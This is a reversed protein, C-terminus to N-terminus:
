PAGGEARRRARYAWVEDAVRRIRTFGTVKSTGSLRPKVDITTLVSTAGRELGRQILEFSFFFTNCTIRPALEKALPVPYLYLGELEFRIGAALMLYDRFARSMVARAVTSHRQPYRTLVIDAGALLPIMKGLEEPELQGDAPFFCLYELRANEIGTRMGAGMGGNQAHQVLRIREDAAARARVIAAGGDTSGDDVVVIEWENLARDAYAVAADLVPGINREENYMLYVLSLSPIETRTPSIPRAKPKRPPM